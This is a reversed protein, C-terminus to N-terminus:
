EEKVGTGNCKECDIEGYDNDIEPNTDGLYWGKGQCNSCNELEEKLLNQKVKEQDESLLDDFHAPYAIKLDLEKHLLERDSDELYNDFWKEANSYYNEPDDFEFFYGDCAETFENCSVIFGKKTHNWEKLLELAKKQIEKVGDYDIGGYGSIEFNITRPNKVITYFDDNSKLLETVKDFITNPTGEPFEIQCKSIIASAM